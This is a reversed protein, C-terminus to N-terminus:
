PKNGSRAEPRDLRSLRESGAQHPQPSTHARNSHPADEVPPISLTGEPPIYLNGTTDQFDNELNLSSQPPKNLKQASENNKQLRPFYM